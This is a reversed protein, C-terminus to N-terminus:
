LTSFPTDASDGELARLELQLKKVGQWDNIKPHFAIRVESPLQSNLHGMGFGIVDYRGRKGKLTFKLTDKGLIRIDFIPLKKKTAFIPKPNASGYPALLSLYSLLEPTIDELDVDADISITPIFDTDGLKRKAAEEFFIQFTQIQDRSIKLGAAYKHGGFGVLHTACDRLGEYIHFGGISRASGKGEDGALAIMITPRGYEEAIRSAVIGIVGPHWDDSYLVM